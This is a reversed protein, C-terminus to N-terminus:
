KVMDLLFPQSANNEICKSLFGKETVGNQKENDLLKKRNERCYNALLRLPSNGEQQNFIDDSISLVSSYAKVVPM